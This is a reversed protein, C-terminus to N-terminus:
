LTSPDEDLALALAVAGPDFAATRFRALAPSNYLTGIHPRFNVEVFRCASGSAMLQVGVLANGLGRVARRVVADCAPKLNEWDPVYAPFRAKFSDFHVM